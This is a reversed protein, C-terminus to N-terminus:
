LCVKLTGHGNRFAIVGYYLHYPYFGIKEIIPGGIAILFTKFGFSFHPNNKVINAILITGTVNFILFILEDRGFRKFVKWFPSQPLIIHLSKISM